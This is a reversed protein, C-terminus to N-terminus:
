GRTQNPPELPTKHQLSHFKGVTATWQYTRYWEIDLRNCQFLVLAHWRLHIWINQSVMTNPHISPQLSAFVVRWSDHFPNKQAIRNPTIQSYLRFVYPNVIAKNFFSSIGGCSGHIDITVSAMKTPTIVMGKPQDVRRHYIYIYIYVDTLPASEQSKGHYQKTWSSRSVRIPGHNLKTRGWCYCDISGQAHMKFSRRLIKFPGVLTRLVVRWIRWHNLGSISVM